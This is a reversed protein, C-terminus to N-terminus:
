KKPSNLEDIEKAKQILEEYLQRQDATYDQYDPNELIELIKRNANIFSPVSMLQVPRENPNYRKIVRAISAIQSELRALIVNTELSPPTFRPQIIQPPSIKQSVFEQPERRFYDPVDPAYGKSTSSGFPKDATDTQLKIDAYGSLSGAELVM